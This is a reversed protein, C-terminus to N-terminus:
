EATGVRAMWSLKINSCICTECSEVAFYSCDPAYSHLIALAQADCVSLTCTSFVTTVYKYQMRVVIAAVVHIKIVYLQTGRSFIIALDLRAHSENM